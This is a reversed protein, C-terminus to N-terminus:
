VSPATTVLIVATKRLNWIAVGVMFAKNLGDVKPFSTNSNSISEQLSGDETTAEDKSLLRTIESANKKQFASKSQTLTERIGSSFLLSIVESYQPKVEGEPNILIKEFFAQNFLRKGHASSQKYSQYCNEVL